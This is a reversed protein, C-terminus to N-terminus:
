GGGRQTEMDFRRQIQHRIEDTAGQYEFSIAMVPIALLAIQRPACVTWRITLTGWDWRAVCVKEEPRIDLLASPLATPLWRLLDEQTCGMQRVFRPPVESPTM